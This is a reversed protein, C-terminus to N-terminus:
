RDAAAHQGPGTVVVVPRLWHAWDAGNNGLADVRLTLAVHTGAWATLDVSYAKPHDQGPQVESWIEQGDVLVAMRVGDFSPGTLVTGFELRLGRGPRTRPLSLTFAAEAVGEAPAPPHQLIAPYLLGDAGVGWSPSWAICHTLKAEGMRAWLDAAATAPDAPPAVRGSVRPIPGAYPLAEAWDSIGIIPKAFETAEPWAPTDAARFVDWIMRKRDPAEPDDSDLERTWMGVHLPGHDAHDVHRHLIFADISPMHRVKEYAFAFAAAQLAEGEPGDPCHFGQESLIIRRPQGRYLFRDQALFAPLVELNRFTIRPSDFGMVATKDNWFRPEFLDEPYPHFAIHWPFNGERVITRNLRELFWDGAMGKLPDPELRSAWTHDMSAYIRIGKHFKRIALWAVRLQDAYERTVQERSAPGMHHWAWHSQLENGVVYGSVWGHECSPDSYRHALYEFAARYYRLGREDTLNFAGIHNPATAPDTRPHTLPSAPDAHSPVGNVPILTVNIGLETARRVLGDLWAIYHVNIPLREGDVEWTEEPTDGSWDFVGSLVVGWDAYRAGLAHLDDMDVPCTVGKKSAPWPMPFGWAPLADLDTVWKPQGLARRTIGDVLQFKSYLLDRGEAFRPLTISQGELRGVWVTVGPGGPTYREYPRLDVLRASPLRGTLEVALSEPLARVRAVGPAGSAAGPGACALLLSAAFGAIRLSLEGM